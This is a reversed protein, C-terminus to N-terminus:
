YNDGSKGAGSKMRYRQWLRQAGPVVGRPVLLVFLVLIIGLLLNSDLKRGSGLLNSLLSVLEPSGILSTLYHILVAGVIPGLLTGLGGVIVWIIIQASQFLSFLSPDAYGGWNVFLAGALGAIAGGLAFLVTKYWRVDYGLLEARQENERIAIIVRGFHSALLWRLGLYILLLCAVCVYFLGDPLLISSANGPINLPPVGHMGNFGNLRATGIVYQDGATANILKFLILTVALTIVGMYVDSLRGYFMFWGLLAAFAAPLAIALLLPATSEGINIASVAYTYAGLGYFAAQGFCLIGGYGWILGLSLALIALIVYITLNLLTFLDVALPTILMFALGAVTALILQVRSMTTM